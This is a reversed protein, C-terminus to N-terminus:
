RDGLAEAELGLPLTAGEELGEVLLERGLLASAEVLLRLDQRPALKPRVSRAMPEREELEVLPVIKEGRPGLDPRLFGL